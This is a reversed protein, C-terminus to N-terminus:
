VPVKRTEVCTRCSTSARSRAACAHMGATNLTRHAWSYGLAELREVVFAIVPPDGGIRDLLGEVQM